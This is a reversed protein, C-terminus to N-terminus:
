LPEIPTNSPRIKSIPTYQCVIPLEIFTNSHLILKYSALYHCFIRYIYM